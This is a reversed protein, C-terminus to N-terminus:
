GAYNSDETKRLAKQKRSPVNKTSNLCFKRGGFGEGGGGGGDSRKKVSFNVTNSVEKCSLEPKTFKM